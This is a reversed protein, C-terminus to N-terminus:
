PPWPDRRLQRKLRNYMVRDLSAALGDCSNRWNRLDTVSPLGTPPVTGQHAAINRWENLKSLHTIRPPNAIDAAALDLTFGFREFDKRINSLNPNGHDLARHATFQSQVMAQLTIRVRSAIVQACESYLDRCFGQFHASLLLGYGRVNEEFLRPNPPSVLSSSACQLDVEQLHIMRTLRWVGLSTSPM